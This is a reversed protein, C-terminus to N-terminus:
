RGIAADHFAQHTPMGVLVRDDPADFVVVPSAETEFWGGAEPHHRLDVGAVPLGEEIAWETLRDVAQVCHPCDPNALLTVSRAKGPM